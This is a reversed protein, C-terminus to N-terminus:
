LERIHRVSELAAISAVMRGHSAGAPLRLLLTVGPRGGGKRLGRDLQVELVEAQQAKVRGLLSGLKDLTEMEVYLCMERAHALAHREVWPLLRMSAFILVFALLMCEYFGAGVALGMCASAWLGAATTLGKVQFLDTVLITGAGLFGIGSIVQAGLRSVDMPGPGEVGALYQGLLMTLAAGLCVLLYTRFGAARGRRGRELGLLGGFVVALLLRVVVSVPNLERLLELWAEM